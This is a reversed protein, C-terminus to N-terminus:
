TTGPENSTSATSSCQWGSVYITDLYKAMQSVQVPDLAGFTFSATGNKKHNKLLRWLKKAQHNSAYEQRFTGRLQVVQEASYPRKITAFRETSWWNKLQAVEVEFQRQFNSDFTMSYKIKQKKSTHLLTSIVDYHKVKITTIFIQLRWLM